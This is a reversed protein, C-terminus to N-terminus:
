TSGTSSQANQLELGRATTLGLTACVTDHTGPLRWRISIKIYPITHTVTGRALDLPALDGRSLLLLGAVHLPARTISGKILMWAGWLVMLM